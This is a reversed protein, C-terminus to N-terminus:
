IGGKKVIKKKRRRTQTQGKLLKEYPELNNKERRRGRRTGRCEGADGRGIKRGGGNTNGKEGDGGGMAKGVKNEANRIARFGPASEGGNTKKLGGGTGEGRV